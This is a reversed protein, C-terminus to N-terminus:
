DPGRHRDLRDAVNTGPQLSTEPMANSRIWRFESELGTRRSRAAGLGLRMPRDLLRVNAVSASLAEEAKAEREPEGHGTGQERQAFLTDRARVHEDRM